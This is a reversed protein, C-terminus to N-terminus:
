RTNKWVTWFLHYLLDTKNVFGLAPRNEKLFTIQRLYLGREPSHDFKMIDGHWLSHPHKREYYRWHIIEVAPVTKPQMANRRRLLTAPSVTIKLINAIDWSLRLGGLHSKELMFKKIRQKVEPVFRKAKSRVLARKPLRPLSHRARIRQITRPSPFGAATRKNIKSSSMTPYRICEQKIQEEKAESIRNHPARTGRPLDCLANKMATLARNRFKYLDSRCIGYGEIIDSLSQGKLMALIAQFRREEKQSIEYNFNNRM